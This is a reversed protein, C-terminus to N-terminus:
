PWHAQMPLGRRTHGCMLTPGDQIFAVRCDELVAVRGERLGALVLRVDLGLLRRVRGEDDVVVRALDDVRDAAEDLLILVLERGVDGRQELHM